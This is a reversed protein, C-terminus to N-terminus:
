WCRGAKKECCWWHKSCKGPLLVLAAAAGEASHIADDYSHATYAVKRQDLVRMANTKPIVTM